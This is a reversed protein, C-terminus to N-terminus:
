ELSVGQLCKWFSLAFASMVKYAVNLVFLQRLHAEPAVIVIEMHSFVTM